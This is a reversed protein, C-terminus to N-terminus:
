AVVEGNKVPPLFLPISINFGIKLNSELNVPLPQYTLLFRCIAYESKNLLFFSSIIVM